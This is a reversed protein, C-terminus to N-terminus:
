NSVFMVKIVHWISDKWFMMKIGVENRRVMAGRNERVQVNRAMRAGIISSSHLSPTQTEQQQECALLLKTTSSFCLIRWMKTKKELFNWSLSVSCASHYSYKRSLFCFAVFRVITTTKFAIQKCFRHSLPPKKRRNVLM